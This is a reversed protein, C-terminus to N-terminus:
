KITAQVQFSTAVSPDKKSKVDVTEALTGAKARAGDVTVTITEKKNAAITDKYEYYLCKCQSRAVAITVPAASNNAIEVQRTARTGKRITGYDAVAPSAVISAAAAPAPTVPEITAPATSTTATTETIVAPKTRDGSARYILYGIIALVIVGAIVILALRSNSAPAPTGVEDHEVPTVLTREIGPATVGEIENLKALASDIDRILRQYEASLHETPSEGALKALAERHQRYQARLSEIERGREGRRVSVTGFDDSM